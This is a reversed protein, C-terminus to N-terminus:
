KGPLSWVPDFESKGTLKAEILRKMLLLSPGDGPNDTLLRALKQVAESFRGAEFDALAEEYAADRSKVDPSSDMALEFLDIPREINDVRVSCLRRAAMDRPIQRRTDRTILINSRGCRQWRFLAAGTAGGDFGVLRVGELSDWAARRRGGM